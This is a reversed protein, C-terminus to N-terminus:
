ERDPIDLYFGGSKPEKSVEEAPKDAEQFIKAPMTFKGVKVGELVYYGDSREELKGM